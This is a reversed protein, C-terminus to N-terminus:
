EDPLTVDIRAPLRRPDFPGVVAQRKGGHVFVRVRFPWEPVTLPAVGGPFDKYRHPFDGLAAREVDAVPDAYVWFEEVPAGGADTVHVPVTPLVDGVRFDETISCRAPATVTTTESPARDAFEGGARMSVKVTIGDIRELVDTSFSAINWYAGDDGTVATFSGNCQAGDEGPVVAEWVGRVQANQVPRGDRDLVRGSVEIRVANDDLGVVFKLLHRYIGPMAFWGVVALTSLLAIVALLIWRWRPARPPEDDTEHM